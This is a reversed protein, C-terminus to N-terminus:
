DFPQQLPVDGKELKKQSKRALSRGQGGASCSPRAGLERTRHREENRREPATKDSDTDSETHRSHVQFWKRELPVSLTGSVGERVFVEGRWHSAGGGLVFVQRSSVFPVM